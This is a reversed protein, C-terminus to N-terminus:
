VRRGAGGAKRAVINKEASWSRLAATSQRAGCCLKPLEKVWNFKCLARADAAVVLPKTQPKISRVSLVVGM